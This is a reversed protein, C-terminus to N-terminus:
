EGGLQSDRDVKQLFQHTQPSEPMANGDDDTSVTADFSACGSALILAVVSGIAAARKLTTNM